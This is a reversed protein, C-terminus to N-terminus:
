IWKLVEASDREVWPELGMEWKYLDRLRMALGCVSFLGAHRSDCITCNRRVQEIIGDIDFM